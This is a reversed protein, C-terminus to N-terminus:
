RSVRTDSLLPVVKLGDAFSGCTWGAGPGRKFDLEVTIPHAASASLLLDQQPVEMSDSVIAKDLFCGLRFQIRGAGDVTNLTNGAEIQALLQDRFRLDAFDTITLYAEPHHTEDLLAAESVTPNSTTIFGTVETTFADSGDPRMLNDDAEATGIMGALALALSNM